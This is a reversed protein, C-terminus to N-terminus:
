REPLETCACRFGLWPLRASPAFSERRFVFAFSEHHDKWSSGRVVRNDGSAPQVAGHGFLRHVLGAKTERQISAAIPGPPNASPATKYYAADYLDACWQQVNGVADLMRYPSAGSLYAGSAATKGANKPMLRHSSRQDFHDGWPYTRGDDGRAAKEWEAETPLRVGAWECYSCAEYWTIGVIPDEPEWPWFAHPMPYASEECYRRYQAVTVPRRYIYYAHLSVSRAPGNDESYGDCGMLFPGAPVHVLEAGDRPNVPHPQMAASKGESVAPPESVAAQAARTREVAREITAPETDDPSVTAEGADALEAPALLSKLRTEIEELHDVEEPTLAIAHPEPAEDSGKPPETDLVGAYHMLIASDEWDPNSRSFARMLDPLATEEGADVEARLREDIRRCTEEMRESPEEDADALGAVMGTDLLANLLERANQFRDGPAHALSRAIAGGLPGHASALEEPLPAAPGLRIARQCARLDHPDSIPFPLRGTLMQYLLVGISWLDSRRDAASEADLQEPAVYCHIASARVRAPDPRAARFGFDGTKALGDHRILINTPKLDGHVANRAHAYALADLVQCAIAVAREPLLRGVIRLMDRLSIGRVYEMETATESSLVDVRHVRVIGPHRLAAGTQIANTAQLDRLLSDEGAAPALPVVKLAIERGTASDAARYVVGSPGSGLTERLLYPGLRDPARERSL